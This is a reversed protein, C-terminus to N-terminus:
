KRGPDDEIMIVVSSPANANAAAAGPKVRVGAPIEFVSVVRSPSDIEDVEVGQVASPASQTTASASLAQEVRAPPAVSTVVPAPLASEGAERDGPPLVMAAGAALALAAFAASAVVRARKRARNADALRGPAGSDKPGQRVVKAMVADAIGGASGAREELSARLWDAVPTSQFGEVIRRAEGSEAVAREARAKEEGALEGDALAMLEIMTERSLSM